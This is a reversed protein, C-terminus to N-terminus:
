RKYEDSICEDNSFIDPNDVIVAYLAQALEDIKKEDHESYGLHSYIGHIMEHVFDANMKAKAAPCIRIILNDYLIEGSYNVSGLSLKDTIEVTYTKGGIKLTEPVRM